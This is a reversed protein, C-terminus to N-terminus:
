PRGGDEETDSSKIIKRVVGKKNRGVIFAVLGINQYHGNM